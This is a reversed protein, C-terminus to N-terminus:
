ARGVVNLVIDEYARGFSALRAPLGARAAAAFESEAKPDYEGLVREIAAALEKPDAPDFFIGRAPNQERHVPINSLIIRKGLTKAEEVTTSWGEFLSPNIMALASRMITAMDGHPILGLFRFREALGAEEVRRKLASFYGPNRFDGTQGTSIVLPVAGKDKLIRLAELIVGHNKHMWLQNPVHLYPERIGHRELVGQPDPLDKEPVLGVFHLVFPRASTNPFLREYDARADESSLIVAQARNAIDAYVLDRRELEEPTFFEPLHTHQFDPIWCIAAAPSRKGLVDGHSLAQIGNRALLWGLLGGNDLHRRSKAELNRVANFWFIWPYKLKRLGSLPPPLKKKDGLIVPSIRKEPLADLAAALNLFYNLGGIWNPSNPVQWAVSIMEPM